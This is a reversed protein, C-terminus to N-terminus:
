THSEYFDESCDDWFDEPCEPATADENHTAGCASCEVWDYSMTYIGDGDCDSQVELDHDFEGGGIYCPHKRFKFWMVLLDFPRRFTNTRKKTKM